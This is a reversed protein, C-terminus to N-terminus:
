WRRPERRDSGNSPPAPELLLGPHREGPPLLAETGPAGPEMGLSARGRRVERELRLLLAMGSSPSSYEDSSPIGLDAAEMISARSSVSSSGFYIMLLHTMKSLQDSCFKDCIVLSGSIVYTVQSLGHLQPITHIFHMNVMRQKWWCRMLAYM